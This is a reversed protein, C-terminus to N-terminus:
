KTAASFNEKKKWSSHITQSNAAVVHQIVVLNKVAIITANEITQHSTDAIIDTQNVKSM